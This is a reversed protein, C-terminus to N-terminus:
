MRRMVVARPRPLEDEESEETESGAQESGTGDDLELEAGSSGSESEAETAAEAEAQAYLERIEELQEQDHEQQQELEQYSPLEGERPMEEGPGVVLQVEHRHRVGCDNCERTFEVKRVMREGRGIDLLDDVAVYERHTHGWCPAERPNEAIRYADLRQGDVRLGRLEKADDGDGRPKQLSWWRSRRRHNRPEFDDVSAVRVFAAAARRQVARRAREVPHAPMAVGAARPPWLAALLAQDNLLRAALAARAADGGARALKTRVRSFRNLRSFDKVAAELQEVAALPVRAAALLSRLRAADAFPQRQALAAAATATLTNTSLLDSQRLARGISMWRAPTPPMTRGLPEFPSATRGNSLVRAGDVYATNNPRLPGHDFPNSSYENRLYALAFNQIDHINLEAVDDNTPVSNPAFSAGRAPIM